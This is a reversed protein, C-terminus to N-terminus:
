LVVYGRANQFDRRGLKQLRRGIGAEAVGFVKEGVVNKFNPFYIQLVWVLNKDLAIVL